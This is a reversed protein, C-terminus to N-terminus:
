HHYVALEVKKMWNSLNGSRATEVKQLKGSSYKM